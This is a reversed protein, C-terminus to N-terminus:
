AASPAPVHITGFFLLEHPVAQGFEELAELHSQVAKPADEMVEEVSEGQTYCGPLAPFEAWYGGEEAAHIVIVYDMAEM